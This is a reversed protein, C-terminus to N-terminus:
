VVHKYSTLFQELAQLREISGVDTWHGGYYEGYLANDGIAQDFLPALRFATGAISAAFLAPTLVAIGAYTYTNESARVLQHNPQLLFDGRVNHAPNDILVLHGLGQLQAGSPLNAFNYDTWIDGNVIIFPEKGLLPLANCIGGGVELLTSERSYTIRVGWKEGSGLASEIQEGLHHVNIIIDDIGAKKLNELHYEILPKGGVKVLPKPCTDTLPRLRSGIGAALIMARM